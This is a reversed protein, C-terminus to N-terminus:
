SRSAEQYSTVGTPLPIQTAVVPETRLACPGGDGPQAIINVLWNDNDQLPYDLRYHAGRSEQRHLASQASVQLVTLMNRLQLAEIWERNYLASKSSTALRAVDSAMREFRALAETLGDATRIVGVHDGVVKQFEQRVAVPRAGESREWPGYIAQLGQEIQGAPASDRASARAFAAAGSGALHGEVVMETLASCVREAGFCGATCEGAAFLGPLSTACKEDIRIGGIAYHAADSTM